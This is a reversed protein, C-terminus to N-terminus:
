LSIDTFVLIKHSSKLLFGIVPIVMILYSNREKLSSLIFLM